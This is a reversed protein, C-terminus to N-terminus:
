LLLTSWPEYRPTGSILPVYKPYMNKKKRPQGNKSVELHKPRSAQLSGSEVSPRALSGQCQFKWCEAVGNYVDFLLARRTCVGFLLPRIKLVSFLIAKIELVRFPLARTKLVGM